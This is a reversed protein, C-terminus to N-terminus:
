NFMCIGETTRLPAAIPTVFKAGQGEPYEDRSKRTGICKLLLEHLTTPSANLSSLLRCRYAFSRVPLLLPMIGLHVGGCRQLFFRSRIVYDENVVCCVVSVTVDYVVRNTFPAASGSGVGNSNEPSTFAKVCAGFGTTRPLLLHEFAPRQEQLIQPCYLLFASSLSGNLTTM